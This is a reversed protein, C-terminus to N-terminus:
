ASNGRRRRKAVADVNLGAYDAIPFLPRCLQLFVNASKHCWTSLGNLVTRAEAIQRDLQAKHRSAQSDLSTGPRQLDQELETLYAAAPSVRAKTIDRHVVTYFKRGDVEVHSIAAECAALIWVYRGGLGRAYSMVSGNWAAGHRSHKRRSSAVM